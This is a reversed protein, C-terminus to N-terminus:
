MTLDSGRHWKARFAWSLKKYTKLCSNFILLSGGFILNIKGGHQPYPPRWTFSLRCSNWFSLYSRVDCPACFEFVPQLYFVFQFKELCHLARFVVKCFSSKPSVIIQCMMIILVRKTRWIDIWVRNYLTCQVTPHTLKESNSIVTHPLQLIFFLFYM